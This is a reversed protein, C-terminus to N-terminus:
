GNLLDFSPGVVEAGFFEGIKTKILAAEEPALDQVGGSGVRQALKWVRYKDDGSERQSQPTLAVLAMEAALALTLVPGNNDSLPRGHLGALVTSFDVKM